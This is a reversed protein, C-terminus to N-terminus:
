IEIGRCLFVTLFITNLYRYRIAADTYSRIVQFKNEVAKFLDVSRGASVILAGPKTQCQCLLKNFHMAPSNPRFTPTFATSACKPNKQRNLRPLATLIM